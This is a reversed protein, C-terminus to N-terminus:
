DKVFSALEDFIFNLDRSADVRVLRNINEYYDLLPEVNSNFIKMRERVVIEKDDERQLLKEGTIDCFGDKLPPKTKLNYIHKGDSTVRRDKLREVLKETNIELFIVIYDHGLLIKDLYKAQEINRPYGDFVYANLSLDLNSKLVEFALKDPVLGGSSMIKEIELGLETKNSIESRLLNGTSIHLYPSNEILKSSQTGKGSGPAGLLIINKM